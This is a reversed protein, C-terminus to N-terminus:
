PHWHTTGVNEKFQANAVDYQIRETNHLGDCLSRFNVISRM